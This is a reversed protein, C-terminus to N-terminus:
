KNTLSPETRIIKNNVWWEHRGNAMEIAPLNDDRHRLGNKWWEKRGDSCIIAPGNDRHIYGNKYWIKTGNQYIIAPSDNDSHLLENRYRNIEGNKAIIIRINDLPKKICCLFGDEYHLILNENVEIQVIM